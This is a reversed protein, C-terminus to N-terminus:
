KESKLIEVAMSIEDRLESPSGSYGESSYRVIGDKIIVKRPIASSKFFPVLSKFVLDQEGKPGVADHLLNFKFGQQRVYNESKSKYDGQQMTGIMYIGVRPDKAYQDVLLQMGPFAEICPRCWTAWFDLVVIQNAWDKSNVLKGDANELSFPVLPYNVMNALVHAKMETKKAEPMLDSLYQQYGDEKGNHENRYIEKLKTLMKPTLANASM